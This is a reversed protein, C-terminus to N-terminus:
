ATTTGSQSRALWLALVLWVAGASAYAVPAVYMAVGLTYRDSLQGVLKPGIVGALGSTLVISYAMASNRLQPPVTELILTTLIGASFGFAAIGAAIGAQAHSLAPSSYALSFALAALLSTSALFLPFGGAISVCYCAPFIVAM